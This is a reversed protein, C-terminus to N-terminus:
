ESRIAGTRNQMCIAEVGREDCLAKVDSSRTVVLMRDFIPSATDTIWSILPKGCLTAMLKNGGFRKGQGSAMIICGIKKRPEASSNDTFDRIPRTAPIETSNM